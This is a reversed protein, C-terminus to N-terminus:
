DEIEVFMDEIKVDLTKAIKWVTEMSPIIIKSAYLSISPETCKTLKAFDKQKMGREELLEKLKFELKM